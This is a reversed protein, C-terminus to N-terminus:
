LEPSIKRESDDHMPAITSPELPQCEFIIKAARADGEHFSGSTVKINFKKELIPKVYNYVEAITLEITTKM